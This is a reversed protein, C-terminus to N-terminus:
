ARRHSPYRQVKGACLGPAVSPRPRVQADTDFSRNARM